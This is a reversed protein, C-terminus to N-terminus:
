IRFFLHFCFILKTRNKFSDNCQFLFKFGFINDIDQQAFLGALHERILVFVQLDETASLAFVLTRPIGYDTLCQYGTIDTLINFVISQQLHGFGPM